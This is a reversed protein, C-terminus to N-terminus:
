RADAGGRDAGSEWVDRGAPCSIRGGCERGRYGPPPWARACSRLGRRERDRSPWRGARAPYNGVGALRSVRARDCLTVVAEAREQMAQGERLFQHVLAAFDLAVALDFPHALERALTLAAHSRKRAQDPYGLSWLAWAACSLCGVGPDEGYRFALSGHQRSDYLALVRSSTRCPCRVFEGLYSLTQGWRVIPKWSCPQTKCRAPGPQPM